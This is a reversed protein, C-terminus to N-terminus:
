EFSKKFNLHFGSDFKQFKLECRRHPCENKKRFEEEVECCVDKRIKDVDPRSPQRTLKARVAEKLVDYQSFEAMIRQFEGDTIQNDALTKSHLRHVTDHKAIALTVIEQHKKINSDLKKSAIILGSSVLAFAGGVGGLPITAPLGIVSLTSGFSPSSFVASLGISGAASWNVFKKARKYKKAVVRYHSVEGNLAVSIENIKQRRFDPLQPYLDPPASPTLVNASSM